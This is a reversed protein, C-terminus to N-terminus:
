LRSMGTILPGPTYLGRQLQQLVGNAELRTLIRECAERALGLLRQTEEVTLLLSPSSLMSTLRAM